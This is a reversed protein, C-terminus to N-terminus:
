LQVEGLEVMASKCDIGPDRQLDRSGQDCGQSAVMIGGSTVLNRQNGPSLSGSLAWFLFSVVANRM